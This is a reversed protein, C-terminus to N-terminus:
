LGSVCTSFNNNTTGLGKGIGLDWIGTGITHKGPATSYLSQKISQCLALNLTQSLEDKTQTLVLPENSLPM